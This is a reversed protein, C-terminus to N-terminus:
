SAREQEWRTFTGEIWLQMNVEDLLLPECGRLWTKLIAQRGELVRRQPATLWSRALQERLRASWRAASAKAAPADGPGAPPSIPEAETSEVKTPEPSYGRTKVKLSSGEGAQTAWSDQIAALVEEKRALLARGLAETRQPGRVRLRDREAQLTIGVAGAEEVLDAVPMERLEMEAQERVAESLSCLRAWISGKPAM